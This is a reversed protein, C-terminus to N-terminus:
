FLDVEGAVPEKKLDELYNTEREIVTSNHLTRLKKLLVKGTAPFFMVKRPYIDGLDEAVVSLHETAIYEHVFEINREGVDSLQALIKGGGFLKLELNERRGGNKLIDNILHEMAFNGYREAQGYSEAGGGDNQVPLMFHNMGGIGFLKDRICAAVCSGLVTTIGENCNTVYYEGPLIKAVNIELSRDWYRSVHEFGPIVKNEGQPARSGLKSM